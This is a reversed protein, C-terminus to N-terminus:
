ETVFTSGHLFTNREELTTLPFEAFHSHNFQKLWLSMATQDEVAGGHLAGPPAEKPVAHVTGVRSRLNATCLEVILGTIGKKMLQKLVRLKDIAAFNTTKLLTNYHPKFYNILGAEALAVVEKRDLKVRTLRDFHTKDQKVSAQAQLNFDGGNSILTQEHEFRYLLLLVEREPFHTTTEALIQQLKTHSLLRNLATRKIKRGIGQGVYLVELDTDSAVLGSQATAVLASTAITHLGQSTSLMLGTGNEAAGVHQIPINPPVSSQNIDYVFPVSVARGTRQVLFEGQVTRNGLQISNPNLYIRHRRVILYINCDSLAVKYSPHDQVRYLDAPTLMTPLSSYLHTAGEMSFPRNLAGFDTM